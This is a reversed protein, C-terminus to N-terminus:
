MWLIPREPRNPLFPTAMLKTVLSSTLIRLSMSRLNSPVMSPIACVSSHYDVVRGLDVFHRHVHSVQQSSCHDLDLDIPDYLTLVFGPIIMLCSNAVPQSSESPIAELWLIIISSHAVYGFLLNIRATCVLCTASLTMLHWIKNRWDIIITGEVHEALGVKILARSCLTAIKPFLFSNPHRPLVSYLLVDVPDNNPIKM